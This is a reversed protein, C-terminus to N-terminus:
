YDVNRSFCSSRPIVGARRHTSAASEDQTSVHAAAKGPIETVADDVRWEITEQNDIGELSGESWGRWVLKNTKADVFDLTITGADYISSHCDDCYGYPRDLANVDIRQTASAHYHLVLGATAASSKELGREALIKDATERIRKEFFENNDLRPDGTGFKDEAAWTYSTYHTFDMGRELAANVRVPACASLATATALFLLGM